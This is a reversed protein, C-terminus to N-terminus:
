LYLGPHKALVVLIHCPTKVVCSDSQAILAPVALCSLHKLLGERDVGAGEADIVVFVSSHM